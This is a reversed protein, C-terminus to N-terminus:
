PAVIEFPIAPLTAAPQRNGPGKAKGAPASRSAIAKVILNGKVGPKIKEADARLTLETGDRAPAIEGLSIGEPADSLELKIQQAFARAPADLRVVATGGAPIKVPTASLIKVGGRGFGRAVAVKWEQAPVLHRYAFAQMMDEAPVAAHVVERGAITARGELHLEVPAEPTFWPATVTLKVQDLGAQVCAGSLSFGAPADRLALAIENTFGDKRLAYVTIPVSSGARMSLSSPAVRLEFDPRPRGVRLRYAYEPGGQRPADTLQLYYTGDAPLKVRLYSDAHHTTLGAGKDECDDNCAIQKGAAATLKLMSDLPSNLRRAYVEAVIEEGARGDFRFVDADGPQDIRGNVIVPLSIRQANKPENNGEKEFVEPLTDAAFPMFNSVWEDRRV